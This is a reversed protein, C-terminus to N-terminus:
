YHPCDRQQRLKEAGVWCPGNADDSGGSDGRVAGSVDRLDTRDGPRAGGVAVPDGVARSSASDLLRFRSALKPSLPPGTNAPM